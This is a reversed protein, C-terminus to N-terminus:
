RAESEGAASVVRPRLVFLLITRFRCHVQRTSGGECLKLPFVKETATSSCSRSIVASQRAMDGTHLVHLSISLSVYAVRKEMKM